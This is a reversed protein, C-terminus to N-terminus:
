PRVFLYGRADDDTRVGRDGIYRIWDPDTVLRVVFPADDPIFRTFVTESPHRRVIEEVKPLVREIWPTAWESDGSFLIQMDVCLHLCSKGLPGFELGSM